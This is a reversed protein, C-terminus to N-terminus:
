DCIYEFGGFLMNLRHRKGEALPDEREYGADEEYLSCLGNHITILKPRYHSVQQTLAAISATSDTFKSLRSLTVFTAPPMAIKGEYHLALSESPTIWQHDIIESGDVM